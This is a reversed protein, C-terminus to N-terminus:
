REDGEEGDEEEDDDTLGGLLSELGGFMGAGGGLAGMQQGLMQQLNQMMQQVQELDISMGGPMGPLGGALGSLAGLGPFGAGAGAGFGVQAPGLDAYVQAQCIRDGRLQFVVLGAQAPVDSGDWRTTVYEVACSAADATALCPQLVISGGKGVMAGYQRRVADAPNFLPLPLPALCTADYTAVLADLDDAALAAVHRAVADPLSLDPAPEFLPPREGRTGTLIGPSYYARIERLAEGEARECVCAVPLMTVSGRSALTLQGAAVFREPTEILALPAYHTTSGAFLPRVSEMHAALAADGQVRGSFPDDLLPEGAFLARVAAADGAALARFYGHAPHRHAAHMADIQAVAEPAFRELRERVLDEVGREDDPEEEAAYGVPTMEGELEGADGQYVYEFGLGASHGPLGLARALDAHRATEFVYDGEKAPARLIAEVRERAGPVGFAECLRAADGGSPPAETGDFYGPCSDYEDLVEGDRALSAYLVDDDAVTAGLAVGGLERTLERALVAVAAPDNESEEDFVVVCGNEAPGVFADRGRRQLASIIRDREPGRLTVNSYSSGMDDRGSATPPPHRVVSRALYRPRIAADGAM